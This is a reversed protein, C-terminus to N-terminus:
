KWRTTLAFGAIIFAFGVGLNWAGLAPIPLQASGSLYFLVIWALGLLMLGLMTPVLWRPNGSEPKPVSPPRQPKPKKRSKSEPM